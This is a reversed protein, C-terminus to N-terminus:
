PVSMQAYLDSMSAYYPLYEGVDDCTMAILTKRHSRDHSHLTLIHYSSWILVGFPVNGCTVSGCVDRLTGLDLAPSFGLHANQASFLAKCWLTATKRWFVCLGIMQCREDSDM